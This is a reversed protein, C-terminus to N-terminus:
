LTLELVVQSNCLSVTQPSPPDAIHFIQFEYLFILVTLNLEMAIKYEIIKYVIM